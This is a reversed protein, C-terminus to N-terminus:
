NADHSRPAIREVERAVREGRRNARLKTVKLYNPHNRYFFEISAPERDSRESDTSRKPAPVLPHDLIALLESNSLRTTSTIELSSM